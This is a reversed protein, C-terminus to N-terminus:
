LEWLITSSRLERDVTLEIERSHRLTTVLVADPALKRISAPGTVVLGTKLMGHKAVDDDVVGVVELGLAKTLRHTAEMVDDAGYFVIRKAGCRKLENLATSIRREMARLNGLLWSYHDHSLERRYRRGHGTLRYAFPRVNRNAVEIYGAKIMDRLYHNVAGVAM